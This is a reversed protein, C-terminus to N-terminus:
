NWPRHHRQADPPLRERVAAELRADDVIGTGESDVM